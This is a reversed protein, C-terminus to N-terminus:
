PVIKLNSPSVMPYYDAYTWQGGLCFEPYPGSAKMSIPAKLSLEPYSGGSYPPILTFYKEATPQSTVTCIEPITFKLSGEQVIVRGSGGGNWSATDAYLYIKGTGESTVDTWTEFKCQSLKLTGNLYAWDTKGSLSSVCKIEWFISYLRFYGSSSTVEANNPYWSAGSAVSCTVSLYLSALLVPVVKLLGCM